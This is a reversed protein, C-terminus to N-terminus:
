KQKTEIKQVTDEVTEIKTKMSTFKEKVESQILEIKSDMDDIERAKTISIEDDERIREVTKTVEEFKHTIEKTFEDTESIAQQIKQENFTVRSELGSLKRKEINNMM